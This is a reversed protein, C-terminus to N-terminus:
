QFCPDWMKWPNLLGWSRSVEEGKNYTSISFSDSCGFSICLYSQFYSLSAEPYWPSSLMRLVTLLCLFADSPIWCSMLDVCLTWPWPQLASRRYSFMSQARSGCLYFDGVSVCSLLTTGELFRWNFIALFNEGWSALVLYCRNILCVVFARWDELCHFGWACLPSPDLNTCLTYNCFRFVPCDTAHRDWYSFHHWM